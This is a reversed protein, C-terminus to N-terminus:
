QPTAQVHWTPEISNRTQLPGRQALETLLAVVDQREQWLTRRLFRRDFSYAPAYLASTWRGSLRYTPFWSIIGSRLELEGSGRKVEALYSGLYTALAVVAVLGFTRVARM